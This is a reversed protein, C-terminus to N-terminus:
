TTPKKRVPKRKVKIPESISRLVGLKTVNFGNLSGSPSSTIGRKISTENKTNKAM